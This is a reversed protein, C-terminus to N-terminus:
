QNRRKLPWKGGPFLVGNVQNLLKKIKEIPWWHPIVVPVLGSSTIWQVYSAPVMGM